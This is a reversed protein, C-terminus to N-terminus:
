FCFRLGGRRERKETVGKKIEVEPPVWDVLVNIFFIHEREPFRREERRGGDVAVIEEAAEPVYEEARPPVYTDIYFKEEKDMTTVIEFPGIFKDDLGRARQNRLLVLDGAVFDKKSEVRNRADYLKKQKQQAAKQRNSAIEKLHSFRDKLESLYKTSGQIPKLTNDERDVSLPLTAERGYLMEFPSLGISAQMSSRYALLAAAIQEDWNDRDRNVRKRLFSKLTGNFLECLGDTQPHYPTTRRKEIGFLSCISQIIKSEFNSGQDTLIVAPMGHRAFIEELARAVTEAEQNPLPIAETYKTFYDILTLIYRNGARTRVLPGIVDVGVMHFPILIVEIPKMPYRPRPVVKNRACTDCTKCFVEVAKNFGPWYYNRQVQEFTKAVGMHGCTSHAQAIVKKQMGEPVVIQTRIKESNYDFWKRCLLGQGNILLSEFLKYLIKLVRSDTSISDPRVGDTVWGFVTGIANDLLQADLLEEATMGIVKVGNAPARSLVDAHAMLTGARHVISYDFEELKLIWRALKGSPHKINRLWQLARHDSYVVVKHGYVYANFHDLGWVVAFAEKETTTWNKECGTLARSAFAVTREVGSDDKEALISGVAIDSADTYLVFERDFRPFAMVPASILANKLEDFAKQCHEDWLFKVDKQLLKHLPAAIKSFGNVFRRYYGMMGLFSCLSTVDVPQPFEKIASVKESDPPLGEGSLEYGLFRVKTKAFVCKKPNLKLGAKRIAEFVDQLNALHEELSSGFCLVDDLVCSM